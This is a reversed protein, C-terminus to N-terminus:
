DLVVFSAHRGGLQGLLVADALAGHQLQESVMVDSDLSLAEGAASIASAM